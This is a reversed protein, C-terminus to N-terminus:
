MLCAFPKPCIRIVGILERKIELGLREIGTVPLVVM